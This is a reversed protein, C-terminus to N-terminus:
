AKVGVHLYVVGMMLPIARVEKFGAHVLRQALEGPGWFERISQALYLYADSGSILRGVQPLVTFSYFDYLARVLPNPPQSFELIAVRGGPRLVRAFEALAAPKDVMNRLGFAITLADFQGGELPLRLGDAEIWRFRGGGFKRQAQRLMAGTFDVGTVRAIQNRAPAGSHCAQNKDPHLRDATRALEWALDGTGTAVDLLNACPALGQLAERAARRRWRQDLSGSLIRNLRDYTPTIAQFM